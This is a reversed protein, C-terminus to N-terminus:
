KTGSLKSAFLQCSACALVMVAYTAMKGDRGFWLVGALLVGLGVCSNWAAQRLVGRVSAARKGGLFGMLALLFGVVLAPAVFNVFHFVGDLVNM